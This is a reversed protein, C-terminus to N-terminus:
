PTRTSRTCPTRRPTPHLPLSPPSLICFSPHLRVPGPCKCCPIHLICPGPASVIVVAPGGRVRTLAYNLQPQLGLLVGGVFFFDMACLCRVLPSVGCAASFSRFFCTPAAARGGRAAWFNWIESRGGGGPPGFFGFNCIKPRYVFRTYHGISGTIRGSDTSSIYIPNTPGQHDNQM